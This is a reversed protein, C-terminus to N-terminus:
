IAKTSNHYVAMRRDKRWFARSEPSSLPIATGLGFIITLKGVFTDGQTVTTDESKSCCLIAASVAELLDPEKIGHASALKMRQLLAQDQSVYRVNYAPPPDQGAQGIVGSMSSFLMFFDLVIGAELTADHLLWTGQFKPAAATKMSRQIIGKLNPVEGIARNADGRNKGSGRVLRVDCGMSELEKVTDADEPGTGASRSLFVLRCAGHEALHRAVARGLGGILM